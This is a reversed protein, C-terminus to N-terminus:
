KKEKNKNNVRNCFNENIGKQGGGGLRQGVEERQRVMGNDTGM